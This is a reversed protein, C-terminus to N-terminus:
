IRRESVFKVVVKTKYTEILARTIWKRGLPSRKLVCSKAESNWQWFKAVEYGYQLYVPDELRFEFPLMTRARKREKKDKAYEIPHKDLIPTSM